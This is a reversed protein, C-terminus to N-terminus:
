KRDSVTDQKKTWKEFDKYIIPHDDFYDGAKGLGEKKGKLVAAEKKQEYQIFYYGLYSFAITNLCMVIYLVVMEWKPTWRSKDIKKLVDDMRHEYSDVTEKQTMLFDKLLFELSSTDTKIKLNDFKDSLEELKDISHNFGTIEQTLVEMIEDLKAM